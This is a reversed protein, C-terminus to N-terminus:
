YAAYVIQSSLIRAWIWSRPDYGLALINHMDQKVLVIQLQYASPDLPALDTNKITYSGDNETTIYVGTSDESNLDNIVIDIMGGCTTQWEIDFGTRPVSTYPEPSTIYCECTPFVISETLDPVGGGADVDFVYEIGPHLFFGSM